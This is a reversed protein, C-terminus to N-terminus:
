LLVIYTFRINSDCNQRHMLLSEQYNVVLTELLKASRLTEHSIRIILKCRVGPTRLLPFVFIEVKSM